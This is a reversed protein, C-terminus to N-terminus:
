DDLAHQITEKSQSLWIMHAALAKRFSVADITQGVLEPELEQYEIYGEMRQPCLCKKLPTWFRDFDELPDYSLRGEHRYVGRSLPVTSWPSFRVLLEADNDTSGALAVLPLSLLSPKVANVPGLNLPWHDRLITTRRRLFSLCGPCNSVDM